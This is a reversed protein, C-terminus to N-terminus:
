DSEVFVELFIKKLILMYCVFMFPVLIIEVLFENFINLDITVITTGRHVALLFIYLTLLSSILPFAFGLLSVIFKAAARISIM